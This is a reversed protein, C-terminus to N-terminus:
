VGIASHVTAVLDISPSALICLYFVCWFDLGRRITRWTSDDCHRSYRYSAVKRGGQPSPQNEEEIPYLPINRFCPDVQASFSSCLEIVIMSPTRRSLLLILEGTSVMRGYNL